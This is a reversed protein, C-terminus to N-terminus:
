LARGARSADEEAQARQELRLLEEVTMKPAEARSAECAFLPTDLKQRYAGPAGTRAPARLGSEFVEAAVDKLKRGERVARLKMERVLPEPLDFTTKM